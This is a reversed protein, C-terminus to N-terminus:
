ESVLVGCGWCHSAKAGSVCRSSGGFCTCEGENKGKQKGM